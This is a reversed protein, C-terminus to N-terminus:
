PARASSTSRRTSNINEQTRMSIPRYSCNDGRPMKGSSKMMQSICKLVSTKMVRGTVLFPSPLPTSMIEGTRITQTRGTSRPLLIKRITTSCLSWRSRITKEAYTQLYKLLQEGGMDKDSEHFAVELGVDLVQLAKKLIRWDTKGETWIEALAPAPKTSKRRSM